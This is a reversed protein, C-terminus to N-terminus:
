NITLQREAKNLYKGKAPTQWWSKVADGLTIPNPVQSRIYLYSFSRKWMDDEFRSLIAAGCASGIGFNFGLGQSTPQVIPNGENQVNPKNILHTVSDAFLENMDGNNPELIIRIKGIKNIIGNNLNFACQLITLEDGRRAQLANALDQYSFQYNTGKWARLLILGANGFVEIEPLTGNAIIFDNYLMQRQNRMNYGPLLEWGFAYENLKNTMRARNVKMFQGFNERKGVKGEFSHDCIGKLVSYAKLCTTQFVRQVM